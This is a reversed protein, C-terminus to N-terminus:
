MTGTKSAPAAAVASGKSPVPSVVAVRRPQDKAVPSSYVLRGVTSESPKGCAGGQLCSFDNEAFNYNHGCCPTYFLRCQQLNNQPNGCYGSEYQGFCGSGTCNKTTNIPTSCTQAALPVELASLMALCLVAMGLVVHPRSWLTRM